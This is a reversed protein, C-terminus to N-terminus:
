TLPIWDRIFGYILFGIVIWMITIVTTMLWRAWTNEIEGFTLFNGFSTIMSIFDTGENEGSLTTADSNNIYVNGSNEDYSIINENWEDATEITGFVGYAGYICTM